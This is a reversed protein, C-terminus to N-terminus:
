RFISKNIFYVEASFPSNGGFALGILKSLIPLNKSSLTHTGPGFVDLLEGGKVFCVEQSQNVILQTGFRLEGGRSFISDSRWKWVLVNNPGDYKLVDIIAM